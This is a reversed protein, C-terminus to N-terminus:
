PYPTAANFSGARQGFLRAISRMVCGAAFRAFLGVGVVQMFGAPYFQRFHRTFYRYLGVTKHWEVFSPSVASTSKEHTIRVEPTFWTLHGATQWRLCFDLDEVGKGLAGLAKPVACRQVAVRGVHDLRRDAGLVERDLPVQGLHGVQGDGHEPGEDHGQM